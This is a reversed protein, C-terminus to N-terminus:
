DLEDSGTDRGEGSPMLRGELGWGVRGGGLEWGNGLVQTQGELNEQARM